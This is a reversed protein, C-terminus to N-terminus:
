DVTILYSSICYLVQGNYEVRSWGQDSVGTRLAVEGNHLQAIVASPEYVSPIDRLNTVDKATVNESVATFKTKFESDEEKPATYSLDTTLYSSVAYLAQGDYIVRSWGNNGKGTRTVVEGNKLQAIICSDDEQDMRSRLNTVDKATVQEEVEEFRVGVEPDAEVPIAAGEERAAAAQSFGFYATDLDVGGSIGPVTGRDTHQWMAFTGGYDPMPSEPYPNSPYQAVWIRYRSELESTKWFADGALEGKAAYFMGAYGGDEVADLFVEALHSREELSLNYQRSNERRFGECNFAVPYTMPYGKILDLTWRAEELAEEETVATSFFYAGLYLGRAAAEQLNYRACRDEKIEGDAESRYGVRVMVFDIGSQAVQDWDINGQFESVDAGLTVEETEGPVEKLQISIEEDGDPVSNDELSDGSVPDDSGGSPDDQLSEGDTLLEESSEGGAMDQTGPDKDRKGGLILLLVLFGILLVALATVIGKALLNNKGIPRDFDDYLSRKFEQDSTRKSPRIDHDRM